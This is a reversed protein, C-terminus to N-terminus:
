CNLMFRMNFLLVITVQFLIFHVLHVLYHPNKFWFLDDRPRMPQFVVEKQKEAKVEHDDHDMSLIDIKKVGGRVELALDIIIQQLKTGVILM